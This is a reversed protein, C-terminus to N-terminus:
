GQFTNAEERKRKRLVSFAEYTKNPEPVHFYSLFDNFKLDELLAEKIESANTPSIHHHLLNRWDSSQMVPPPLGDPLGCAFRKIRVSHSQARLFM